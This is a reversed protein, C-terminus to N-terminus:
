TILPNSSEAGGELRWPPSLPQPNLEDGRALSKIRGTYRLTWLVGLCQSESRKQTLSVHLHLSPQMGPPVLSARLWGRWRGIEKNM